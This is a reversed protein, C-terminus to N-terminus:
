SNFRLRLRNTLFKKTKSKTAVLFGGVAGLGAGIASGILPNGTIAGIIAGVAAGAGAGVATGEERTTLPQGSCGSVTYLAWVIGVIYLLGSSSFRRCKGSITKM